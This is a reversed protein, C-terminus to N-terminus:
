IEYTSDYPLSLFSDLVLKEEYSALIKPLLPGVPELKEIKSRVLAKMCLMHLNQQELASCTVNLVSLEEKQYALLWAWQEQDSYM